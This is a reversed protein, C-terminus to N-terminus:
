KRCNSSNGERIVQEKEKATEVGKKGGKGKEKCTRDDREAKRKGKIVAVVM